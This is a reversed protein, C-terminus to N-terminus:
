SLPASLVPHTGLVLAKLTFNLSRKHTTPPLRVCVCVCVGMCGAYDEYVEMAEGFKGMGVFKESQLAISAM